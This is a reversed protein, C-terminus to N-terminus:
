RWAFVPQEYHSVRTMRGCLAVESFQFAIAATPTFVEDQLSKFLISLVPSESEPIHHLRPVDPQLLDSVPVYFVAAVEDPDSRMEGSDELWIVVPTIRFGSRTPFDDLQGIVNEERATLGLEEELERLAATQIDEGDDLRGGPLAYQGSHRALGSTRRTLLFCADGTVPHKVVVVAVAALRLTQDDIGLRDFAHLNQQCHGRLRADFTLDIDDAV